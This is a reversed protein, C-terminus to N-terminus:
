EGGITIINKLTVLEQKVKKRESTQLPDLQNLKETLTIIYESIQYALHLKEPKKGHQLDKDQQEKLDLLEQEKQEEQQERISDQLEDMRDEIDCQESQLDEIDSQLDGWENQLHHLESKLSELTM